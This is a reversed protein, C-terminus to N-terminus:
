NLYFFFGALNGELMLTMRPILLWLTVLQSILQYRPYVLFFSFFNSVLAISEHCRHCIKLEQSGFFEGHKTHLCRLITSCPSPLLVLVHQVEFFIHFDLLWAVDRKWSCPQSGFLFMISLKEVENKYWIRRRMNAVLVVLNAHM